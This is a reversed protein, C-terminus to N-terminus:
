GVGDLARVIAVLLLLGLGVPFGWRSHWDVKLALRRKKVRVLRNTWISQLVALGVLLYCSAYVRDGLTLYDVEPLSQAEVYQLAIASLLCTVGIGVESSLDAPDIWFVSFSVALIVLLPLLYKVIHFTVHRRVTLAFKALTYTPRGQEWRFDERARRYTLDSSLKWSLLGAYVADDIGLLAPSDAYVVQSEDYQEDSIRLELRQRDFPFMRLNFPSRLTSHIRRTRVCKDGRVETTDFQTSVRATENVVETQPTFGATPAWSEYLYYDGDWTGAHENVESIGNLTVGVAVVQQDDLHPALTTPCCEPPGTCMNDHDVDARSLGPWLLFLLTAAAIWLRKAWKTHM